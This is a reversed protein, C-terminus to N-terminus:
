PTRCPRNKGGPRTEWTHPGSLVDVKLMSTVFTKQGSDDFTIVTHHGSPAMTVGAGFVQHHVRQGKDLGPPAAPAAAVPPAVPRRPTFPVSSPAPRAAARAAAAEPTWSSRRKVVKTQSVRHRELDADDITIVEAPTEGAAVTEQLKQYCVDPGDQLRVRGAFAAIAILLRTEAPGNPGIISFRYVRHEGVDKFDKYEVRIAPTSESRVNV